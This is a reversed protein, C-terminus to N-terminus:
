GHQEEKRGTIPCGYAATQARRIADQAKWMEPGTVEEPVSTAWNVKFM